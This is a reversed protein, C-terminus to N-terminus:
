GARYSSIARVLVLVVQASRQTAGPAAPPQKVALMAAVTALVLVEAADPAGGASLSSATRASVVGHWLDLCGDGLVVAGDVDWGRYALGDPGVHMTVGILACGDNGLVDLAM